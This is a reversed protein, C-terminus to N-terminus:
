EGEYATVIVLLKPGVDPEVIVVWPRGHQPDQDRYRGAIVNPEFRESTRAYRARRGWDGEAVTVTAAPGSASGSTASPSPM